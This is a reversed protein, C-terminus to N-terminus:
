DSLMVITKRLADILNEMEEISLNIGGIEGAGIFSLRALPSVTSDCAVRVTKGASTKFSVFTSIQINEM